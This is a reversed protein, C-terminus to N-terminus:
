LPQKLSQSLATPRLRCTLFKGNAEPTIFPLLRHTLRVPEGILERLRDKLSEIDPQCGTLSPVVQIGYHNKQIEDLKFNGVGPDSYAIEAIESATTWRDGQIITEHVRGLVELRPTVRGCQCKGRFIRGVDGVRYRILPLAKNSLDTVVIEGCQGDEVSDRGRIIEVERYQDFLHMPTHSDCASAIPGLESTGYMNRSAVGLLSRVRNLLSASALGGYPSVYEIPTQSKSQTSRYEALWLLYQPFARLLVSPYAEIDRWAKALQQTLESSSRGDLPPLIDQRFLLRREFLGNLDSRFKDSGISKSSIGKKIHRLISTEPPGDLGCVTNCANPPIDILSLGISRNTAIELGYLMTARGVDRSTFDAVITLRDDTTGSTSRYTRNDNRAKTVVGQPFVTRISTKSVPALKTLNAFAEEGRVEETAIGSLVLRQRHFSTGLACNM